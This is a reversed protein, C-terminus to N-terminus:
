SLAYKCGKALTAVLSHSLSLVVTNDRALVWGGIKVIKHNKLTRRTVAWWALNEHLSDSLLDASSCNNQHVKPAIVDPMSPECVGTRPRMRLPKGKCCSNRTSCAVLSRQPFKAVLSRTPRSQLVICGEGSDPQGRRIMSSGVICTLKTGHCSVKCGPHARAHPYNFWKLVNETYGAVRLNQRKLQSHGHASARSLITCPWYSLM